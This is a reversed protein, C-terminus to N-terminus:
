ITQWAEKQISTKGKRDKGQKLESVQLNNFNWDMEEQRKSLEEFSREINYEKPEGDTKARM